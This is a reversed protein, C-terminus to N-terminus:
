HYIIARLFQKGQIKHQKSTIKKLMIHTFSMIPISMHIPTIFGIVQGLQGGITFTESIVTKIRHESHCQMTTIDEIKGDKTHTTHPIVMEVMHTIKLCVIQPTNMDMLEMQTTQWPSLTRLARTRNDIVTNCQNRNENLTSSNITCIPKHQESNKCSLMENLIDPFDKKRPNSPIQGM